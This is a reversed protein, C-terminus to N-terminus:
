WPHVRISILKECCEQWLIAPRCNLSDDQSRVDLVFSHELFALASTLSGRSLVQATDQWYGIIGVCIMAVPACDPL